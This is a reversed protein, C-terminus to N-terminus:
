GSFMSTRNVVRHSRTTEKSTISSNIIYPHSSIIVPTLFVGPTYSVNYIMLAGGRKTKAVEEMKKWKSIWHSNGISKTLEEVALVM